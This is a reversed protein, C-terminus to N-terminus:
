ASRRREAEADIKELLKLVKKGKRKKEQEIVTRQAHCIDDIVIGEDEDYIVPYVRCGSPRAAYVNCRQKEANYFVCHGERNRLTAYGAKDFRVFSKKRYGEKELREIDETSLLMETETCCVGCHLCRM